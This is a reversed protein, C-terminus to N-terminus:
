EATLDPQFLGVINGETDKFYALWGMSPIPMKPVALLGGSATIDAVKQDISEVQITCVFSSVPEGAQPPPGQRRLLGGDIGPEEKGGTQITWYEMPGNWKDMKWGFHRTYFEVARDPNDAHIEFHVVRGM